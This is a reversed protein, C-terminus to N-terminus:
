RWPAGGTFRTLRLGACQQLEPWAASSLFAFEALRAPVSGAGQEPHCMILGCDAAGDLWAAMRGAYTPAMGFDYVGAFDANHPWGDAALLAGLARGGLAAILAAKMGRWRRPVTCRVAVARGYRGALERLLADRVGPLQHVHEHGDVFDPPRALAAEFRDLQRPLAQAAARRARAPSALAQVVRRRIDPNGPPSTLDLHLGVAVVDVLERLAPAAAPFEPGDVACSVASVRRARALGLIAAVSPATLGFDDACLAIRPSAHAAPVRV